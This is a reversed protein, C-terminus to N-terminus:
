LRLGLEVIARAVEHVGVRRRRAHTRILDYAADPTVRRAGAIVGKAQEVVIRSTLAHQLQDTLRQQRRLRDATLLHGAALGALLTGVSLEEATWDRPVSDYLSLVGLRASDLQVPIAVVAPVGHRVAASAYEPWQGGHRHMDAVAVPEGRRLADVGPGRACDQQAAEVHALEDPVAGAVSGGDEDILTVAAGCLALVDIATAILQRVAGSRDPADPLRLVLRALASMMPEGDSM